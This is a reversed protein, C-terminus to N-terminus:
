LMRVWFQRSNHKVLLSGPHVFISCLTGRATLKNEIAIVFRCKVLVSNSLQFTWSEFLANTCLRFRLLRQTFYRQFHGKSKKWMKRPDKDTHYVWWFFPKPGFVGGLFFGFLRRFLRRFRALIEVEALPIKLFRGSFDEHKQLIGFLRRFRRLFRVELVKREM